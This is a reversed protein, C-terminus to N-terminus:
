VGAVLQRGVRALALLAHGVTGVHDTTPEAQPYEEPGEQIRPRSVVEHLELHEEGGPTRQEVGPNTAGAPHIQGTRHRLTRSPRRPMAATGAPYASATRQHAANWSRPM